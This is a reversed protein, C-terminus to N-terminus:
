LSLTALNLDGHYVFVARRLVDRGILCQIDQGEFSAEAAIVSVPGWPFILSALYRRSVVGGLTPTSIKTTGISTLNLAQCIDSRIATVDSGTDVVATVRVPPASSEVDVSPIRMIRQDPAIFIEFRPGSHELNEIRITFHPM